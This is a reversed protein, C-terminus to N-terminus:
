SGSFLDFDVDREIKPGSAFRSMRM